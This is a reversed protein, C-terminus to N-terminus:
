LSDYEDVRRSGVPIQVPVHCSGRLPPPLGAFESVPVWNTIFPRRKSAIDTGGAYWGGRRHRPTPEQAFGVGAPTRPMSHSVIRSLPRCGGPCIRSDDVLTVEDPWTTCSM